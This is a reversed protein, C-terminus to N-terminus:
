NGEKLGRLLDSATNFDLMMGLILIRNGKYNLLEFNLQEIVAQIPVQHIRALEIIRRAM